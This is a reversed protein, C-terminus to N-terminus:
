DRELFRSTALVARHRTGYAHILDKQVILMSAIVRVLANVTDLNSHLGTKKGEAGFSNDRGQDVRGEM